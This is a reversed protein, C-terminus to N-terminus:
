ITLRQEWRKSGNPGVVLYLGNGDGYKGPETM